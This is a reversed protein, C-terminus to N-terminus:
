RHVGMAKLLDDAYSVALEDLRERDTNEVQLLGNLAACAAQFRLDFIRKEDHLKAREIDISANEGKEERLLYISYCGTVRGDPNKWECNKGCAYCTITKITSV